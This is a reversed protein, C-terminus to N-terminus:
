YKENLKIVSQFSFPILSFSHCPLTLASSIIPSFWSIGTPIKTFVSTYYFWITGGLTAKPSSSSLKLVSYAPFNTNLRCSPSCCSLDNAGLTRTTEWFSWENQTQQQGTTMVQTAWTSQCLRHSKYPIKIISPPLNLSWSLHTCNTVNLLNSIGYWLTTAKCNGSYQQALM